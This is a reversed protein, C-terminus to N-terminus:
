GVQVLLVYSMSTSPVSFSRAFYRAYRDEPNKALLKHIIHSIISPIDPRINHLLMPEKSVIDALVGRITNSSFMRRGM